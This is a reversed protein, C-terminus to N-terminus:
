QTGEEKRASMNDVHVIALRIASEMAMPWHVLWGWNPRASRSSLGSLDPPGSMGISTVGIIYTGIETTVTHLSRGSRAM